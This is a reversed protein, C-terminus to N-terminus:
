LLLQQEEKKQLKMPTVQTNEFIARKLMNSCIAASSFAM